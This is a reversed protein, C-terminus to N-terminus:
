SRRSAARSRWTAACITRRRSIIWPVYQHVWGALIRNGDLSDVTERLKICGMLDDDALPRTGIFNLEIARGVKIAQEYSYSWTSDLMIDFDDGVAARM